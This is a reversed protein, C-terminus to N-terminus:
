LLRLMNVDHALYHKVGQPGLHIQTGQSTRVHGSM